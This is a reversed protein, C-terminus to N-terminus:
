YNNIKPLFITTQPKTKNTQKKTAISQGIKAYKMSSLFICKLFFNNSARSPVKEVGLTSM